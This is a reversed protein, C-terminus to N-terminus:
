DFTSVGTVAGGEDLMVKEVRMEAQQLKAECHRKLATGREYAAIAEDLRGSGDELRRVIAELEALADEFTMEGISRQEDAGSMRTEGAGHPVRHLERTRSRYPRRFFEGSSGKERTEVASAVAIPSSQQM